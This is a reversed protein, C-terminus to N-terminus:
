CIMRKRPRPLKIEKRMGMKRAKIMIKKTRMVTEEIKETRRAPIVAQNPVKTVNRGGNGIKEHDVASRKLVKQVIEGGQHNIRGGKETGVVIAPVEIADDTTAKAEADVKLAEAGPMQVPAVPGNAHLVKVKIGGGDTEQHLNKNETLPIM